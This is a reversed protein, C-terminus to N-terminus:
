WFTEDMKKWGPQPLVVIAANTVILAKLSLESMLKQVTKHNIDHRQRKLSITIRRYGYRGKHHQYIERIKDKLM